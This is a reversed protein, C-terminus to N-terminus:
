SLWEAILTHHAALMRKRMSRRAKFLHARLTVHNMQLQRAADIPAIGRLDVLEFVARQKPPLEDFHPLVLRQIVENAPDITLAAEMAAAEIPLTEQLHRRRREVRAHELAANRTVAYLWTSFRSRGDFRHVSRRLGILVDQAIDDAVDLDDTHRRAWDRVQGQVQAVLRAFAEESGARVDELLGALETDDTM